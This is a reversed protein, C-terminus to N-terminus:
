LLRAKGLFVLHHRSIDVESAGPADAFCGEDGKKRGM